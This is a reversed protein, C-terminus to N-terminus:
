SQGKARTKGQRAIGDINRRGTARSGRITPDHGQVDAREIRTRPPVASMVRPTAKVTMSPVRPHVPHVPKKEGPKRKKKAGGKPM